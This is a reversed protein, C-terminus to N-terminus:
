VTEVNQFKAMVSPLVTLWSVGAHTAKPSRENVKLKRSKCNICALMTREGVRPRKNSHADQGESSM